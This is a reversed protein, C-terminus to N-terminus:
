GRWPRRPKLAAAYVDGGGGAADATAPADVDGGGGRGMRRRLWGSSEPMKEVMQHPSNYATHMLQKLWQQKYRTCSEYLLYKFRTPRLKIELLLNLNTAIIGALPAIFEPLIPVETFLFVCVDAQEFLNAGVLANWGTTFTARKDKFKMLKMRMWGDGAERRHLAATADLGNGESGSSDGGGGICCLRRMWVAMGAM